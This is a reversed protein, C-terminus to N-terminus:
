STEGDVLSYDLTQDTDLRMDFNQLEGTEEDPLAVEMRITSAGSTTSRIVRGRSSDFWTTGESTSPDILIRFVLQDLMEGLEETSGESEFALLFQGFFESLDVEGEETGTETEIVLTEVGDIAETGTLEGEMTTEVPEDAGADDTFTHTWRDGIQVPEDPLVPGMLQSLDGVLGALPLGSPALLDEADSEGDTVLRGLDDVVIDASVPEIAGLQALQDADTVPEGDAIGEVSVQDFESEISIRYTGAEAGEAVQFDFSGSATIEVDASGPIDESSVAAAEGDTELVLRQTLDVRYTLTEGPEFGYALTVAEALTSPVPTPDDTGTPESVEGTCGVLVLVLVWILSLVRM